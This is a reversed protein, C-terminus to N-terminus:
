GFVRGGFDVANIIESAAVARKGPLQMRRLRLVGAGTCVDVGASGVAVVEGPIGKCDRDIAYADWIRIRRDDLRSEAVPWPNFARVKRALAAAPEKWDIHSENKDIKAAYCARADDQAVAPLPDDRLRNLVYLLAEAGLVALRDHLSGGTEDDAIDLVAQHLVDGTDLGQDMQMISIGTQRDGAMLARQVPAAGRWRPLLSAHVNICGLRPLELISPPLILGYAVVVMLDLNLAALVARAEPPKLSPPQLLPLGHDSAAQKVPSAALRRGRGAPRDPQTLVAVVSEPCNV